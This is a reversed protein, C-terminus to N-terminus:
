PNHAAWRETAGLMKEPSARWINAKVTAIRGAGNAVGASNWPEGVCYGDLGGALMADAMLPPPVVVIDIDREPVIGSAALWYRLEYNHSSHPHVVGFKLRPGSGRCDYEGL